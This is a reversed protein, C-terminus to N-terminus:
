TGCLEIGVPLVPEVAEVATTTAVEDEAMLEVGLAFAGVVPTVEEDETATGVVDAVDAVIPATLLM